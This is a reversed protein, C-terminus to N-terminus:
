EAKKMIFMLQNEKTKFETPIEGKPLAYILRLTEGEKQILGRAIDGSSGEVKSTMVIDSPTKSSDLKYTASYREKKEKDAVTVSDKTFTVITGKIREEPEKLGDKEGSVITYRGVLAEPSFTKDDEVKTSVANQAMAISSLVVIFGVGWIMDLAWM